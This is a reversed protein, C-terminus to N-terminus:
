THEERLDLLTVRWMVTNKLVCGPFFYFLNPEPRTFTNSTRPCVHMLLNHYVSYSSIWWDQFPDSMFENAWLRLAYLLIPISRGRRDKPCSFVARTLDLNSRVSTWEFSSIDTHHMTYLTSTCVGAAEITWFRMLWVSSNIWLGAQQHSCFLM